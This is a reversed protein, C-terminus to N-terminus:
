YTQLEIRALEEASICHWHLGSTLFLREMVFLHIGEPPKWTQELVAPLALKIDIPGISGLQTGHRLLGQM